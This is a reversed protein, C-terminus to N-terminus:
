HARIHDPPVEIRSERSVDEDAIRGEVLLRDGLASRGQLKVLVSRATLDLARTSGPQWSGGQLVIAIVEHFSLPQSTILQFLMVREALRPAIARTKPPSRNVASRFLM